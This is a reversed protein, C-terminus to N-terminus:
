PARLPLSGITAARSSGSALDGLYDNHFIVPIGDASLQVDFELLSAGQLLPPLLPPPSM